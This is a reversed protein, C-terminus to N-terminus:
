TIIQKKWTINDKIRQSDSLQTSWPNPPIVFFVHAINACYSQVAIWWAMTSWQMENQSASDLRIWAVALGNVVITWQKYGLSDYEIRIRRQRNRSYPFEIYGTDSMELPRQSVNGVLCSNELCDDSVTPFGIISFSELVTFSEDIFVVLQQQQQQQEASFFVWCRCDMLPYDMRSFKHVNMHHM